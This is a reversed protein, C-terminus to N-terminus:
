SNAVWVWDSAEFELECASLIRCTTTAEREDLLIRFGMTSAANAITTIRVAATMKRAHRHGNVRSATKFSKSSALMLLTSM